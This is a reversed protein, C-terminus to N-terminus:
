DSTKAPVGGGLTFREIIAINSIGNKSFEEIYRQRIPNEVAQRESDSMANLRDRGGVNRGADRVSLRSILEDWFLHDGFEDILVHAVSSEEYDATPEYAHSSENYSILRETGEEGALAYLKQILARHRVSRLDEERRHGSMIVDAIHLIDLLDRYEKMTIEINM